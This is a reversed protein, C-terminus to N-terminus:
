TAVVVFFRFIFYFFSISVLDIRMSGVRYFCLSLISVLIFVAYDHDHSSARAGEYMHLRVLFYICIQSKETKTLSQKYSMRTEHISERATFHVKPPNVSAAAIINTSKQRHSRLCCDAVIAKSEVNQFHDVVVIILEKKEASIRSFM